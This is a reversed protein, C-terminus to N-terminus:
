FPAAALAALCCLVLAAVVLLLFYQEQQWPAAAHVTMCSRRQWCRSATLLSSLQLCRKWGVIEVVPASFTIYFKAHRPLIDIAYAYWCGVTYVAGGSFLQLASPRLFALLNLGRFLPRAAAQEPRKGSQSPRQHPQGLLRWLRCRSLRM